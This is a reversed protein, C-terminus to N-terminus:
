PRALGGGQAREQELYSRVHALGTEGAWWRDCEPLLALVAHAAREVGEVAPDPVSRGFLRALRGRLRDGLTPRYRFWVERLVEPVARLRAREELRLDVSSLNSPEIVAGTSSVYPGPRVRGLEVIFEGGWKSTQV